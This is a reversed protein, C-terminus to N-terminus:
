RAAACRGAQRGPCVCASCRGARAATARLAEMELRRGMVHPAGGASMRAMGADHAARHRPPIMVEAVSLGIVQERSRGFMAEAAPNFEVIRGAADATVLAALANDVIAMKLQEALQVQAAQQKIETLDRAVGMVLQVAGESVYPVLWEETYRRGLEVVPLPCLMGRCDLELNPEPPEGFTLRLHSETM